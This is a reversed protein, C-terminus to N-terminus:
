YFDQFNKVAWLCSRYDKDIYSDVAGLHVRYNCLLLIILTIYTRDLVSLGLYGWFDIVQFGSLWLIILILFFISYFLFVM